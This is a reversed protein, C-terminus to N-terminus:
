PASHADVGMGLAQGTVCRVIRASHGSLIGASVGGQNGRQPADRGAGLQAVADIVDDLAVETRQDHDALRGLQLEQEGAPELEVM